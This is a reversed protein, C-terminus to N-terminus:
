QCAECEGKAAQVGAQTYIYYLGLINPDEFAEQHVEAIWSPDEDAAFFLNLSQWQDIYRSRASALRIVAKQNIEFATKFVAKEKDTLWGVHQVSGQQDTIEQLHKKSYVGKEKMLDLLIPNVRDVEGAATAQIFTMAPDPGIGESVGGMLLATSKTPAIAILHTNRVGYGKCWEPEGLEIAMDQSAKDASKRIESSIEQSLLHAEFGEFPLMEQMFLTHLGCLGLGLARGKETFRVTKELGSVGKAKQIFEEAVCDLFITAWYMADTDKWERYRSANASSLVCSYTHDKDNFLVIENCQGTIIGNFVGMHRKPETFCFTDDFRGEDLVDTIKVFQACERNPQHDTLVLRKPSFGIEQLTCIGTQGILLRYATQCQFDGNEGSGNNLPLKYVGAERALTVKSSVGITQLMLQVELLFNKNVSGVQISQTKGCRAITGDGDCLGEFWKVKSLVSFNDLPVFFKERLFQSHAYERNQKDQVTWKGFIDGLHERLKRKEHYLYIRKGQDTYCGEASFMGNAYANELEQSGNIIPFNCKILKDGVELEGASKEVIWRNGTTPNRMAVYFKHYPTCEIEFGSNTLVKLLKQNEGTKKVTVRSFEEGNWVNVSEGELEAIPLYGEDTLILTEPAVCLQSNNIFMGKDKYMLPRKDNAKDVFFFYGKGLIMKAKMVKQFRETSEADGANLKDIFSQKVTWGINLDDPDQMLHNLVEHFDGHEINLYAAWAGRRTSGQAVNRMANVHEKIVPLVGSAKGGASINSGRPRINSLDTATGFGNKTLTAVEHLNSYFGDISDEVVTGSCSVPMARDTGMNALVPTSPSLWGKWLLEFFKDEAQAEYKTGKLHKAATQAIREFQGRVSRGKTEYEYKSKFMQYGGTTYWDPVLGKEQLEKREKGLKDYLNDSM